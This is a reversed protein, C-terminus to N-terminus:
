RPSAPLRSPTSARRQRMCVPARARARARRICRRRRLMRLVRHHRPSNHANRTERRGPANLAAMGQVGLPELAPTSSSLRSAHCVDRVAGTNRPRVVRRLFPLRSVRAPRISADSPTRCTKEIGPHKLTSRAAEARRPVRRPWVFRPLWIPVALTGLTDRQASRQM